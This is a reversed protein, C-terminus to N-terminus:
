MRDSTTESCFSTSHVPYAFFWSLQIATLLCLLCFSYDSWSWAWVSLIKLLEQNDAFSVKIKADALGWWLTIIYVCSLFLVSFSSELFYGTCLFLFLFYLLSPSSSVCFFFSSLICMRKQTCKKPTLQHQCVSLFFWVFCLCWKTDSSLSASVLSLVCVFVGDSPMLPCYFLLVSFFDLVLYVSCPM